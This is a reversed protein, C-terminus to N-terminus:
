ARGDQEELARLLEDAIRQEHEALSPAISEAQLWVEKAQRFDLGFRERITRFALWFDGSSAYVQRFLEHPTDM